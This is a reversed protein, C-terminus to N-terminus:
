QNLTIDEHYRKVSMRIVESLSFRKKLRAELFSRLEELKIQDEERTLQIHLRRNKM